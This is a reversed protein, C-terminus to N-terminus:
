NGTVFVFLNIDCPNNKFIQVASVFSETMVHELYRPSLLSYLFILFYFSIFVHLNKYIM